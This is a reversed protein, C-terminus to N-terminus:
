ATEKEIRKWDALDKARPVAMVARRFAERAQVAEFWEMLHPMQPRACDIGMYRWLLAGMAIDGFSFDHGAFWDNRAIWADAVLLCEAVKNEAAAAAAVDRAEPLSRVRNIFLAARGAVCEGPDVGDM